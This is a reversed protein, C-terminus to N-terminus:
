KVRSHSVLIEENQAMTHILGLILNMGFALSTRLACGIGADDIVLLSVLYYM